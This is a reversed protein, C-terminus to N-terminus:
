LHAYMHTCTHTYTHTCTHAHPRAQRAAEPGGECVFVCVFVCVRQGERGGSEREGECVCVCVCLCCERDTECVEERPPRYQRVSALHIKQRQGAREIVFQEPNVIEVVKATFSRDSPSLSMAKSSSFAKWLKLKNTQAHEQAARYADPKGQLSSISWDVIKALGAKLLFESINRGDMIPTALFTNGAVGELRLQVDRHLLRSEVFYKAEMAFPEPVEKGEADRKIQPAKVGTLSFTIYEFTPLLFARLTCGDRVHEIVAKVPKGKHKDVLARMNEVNWKIDRVHAKKEKENWIGARASEAQSQAAQMKEFVEGSGRSGERIRALGAELLSKALYEEQATGHNLVLHGFERGSPVTYEVM